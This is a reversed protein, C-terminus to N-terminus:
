GEISIYPPNEIDFILTLNDFPPLSSYIEIIQSIGGVEVEVEEPTEIM